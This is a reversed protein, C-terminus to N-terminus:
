KNILSEFDKKTYIKIGKEIAKRYKSSEKESDDKIILATTKNSISDKVDGGMNKIDQKLKEDRFGTFVYIHGSLQNSVKEIEKFSVYPKIKTIFQKAYKMNNVIPEALTDSFGEINLIKNRLVEKDKIELIDPIQKFLTEVRKEGIGFGLVSSVAVFKYVPVDKLGTRINTYIREAGKKEIGPIQLLREETASIIKILNDLGNELLKKVTAESVHKIGLKSFFNSIIKICMADGEYNIISIDVHNKDWVYKVDPFTIKDAPTVVNVIYPIVDKSRTINIVAGKGINNEEIYKANHGNVRSITIENLVVPKVIVVPKIKGWKSVNWEIDEVTTKHIADELLMKFAFMYKPNGSTNRTYNTNPQVIIGDLEYESEAKCDVYLKKLKEMNFDDSQVKASDVIKFGLDELEILQREQNYMENNVIEYAVFDVDKLAPRFTKAGVIGAVMNRANRYEYKYKNQFTDKKMILEGRINIDIDVKPLSFYPRLHSIDAGIEGDGRTYLQVVGSKATLLCSVGDLKESVIYSPAKNELKWKSLKDPQNPTIKDASGLWYPLKVRNEGTRLVAGINKKILPDKEYLLEKIYDYQDDTYKSEEGDKPNYYQQDLEEKLNKLQQLSLSDIYSKFESM